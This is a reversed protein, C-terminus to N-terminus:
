PQQHSRERGLKKKLADITNTAEEKTMDSILDRLYALQRESAKQPEGPHERSPPKVPSDVPRGAAAEGALEEGCFQTGYGLAALARGISKTESKEVFDRFDRAKEVGHGTAVAGNPLTIRARCVAIENTHHLLETEIVANPHETRLWLLRWKVELYSQGNISTLYAQPNFKSEM